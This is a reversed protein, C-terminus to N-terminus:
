FGRGSPVCYGHQDRVQGNKQKVAIVSDVQQAAHAIAAACAPM